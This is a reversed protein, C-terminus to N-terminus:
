HTNSHACMYVIFHAVVESAYCVETLAKVTRTSSPFNENTKPMLAWTLLEEGCFDGANLRISNFFNSRGGNTTNSELTGRIIFFMENVPDGERAVYTDEPCLCSVLRECIAHLLQEDM